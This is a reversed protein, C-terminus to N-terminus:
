TVLAAGKGVGDCCGGGIWVIVSSDCSGQWFNYVGSGVRRRCEGALWSINGGVFGGVFGKRVDLDGDQQERLFHQSPPFSSV